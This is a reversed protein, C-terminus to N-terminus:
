KKANFIISTSDRKVFECNLIVTQTSTPKEAGIRTFLLKAAVRGLEMAPLINATIPVKMFNDYFDFSEFGAVALDKPIRIKHDFCYNLCGAVHANIVSYIASPRYRKPLALLKETVRYGGEVDASTPVILEDIIPVEHDRLACLYGALRGHHDEREYARHIIGIRRHKQEILHKVVTYSCDFDNFVAYDQDYVIPKRTIFVLPIGRTIVEDIYESKEGSSALIIGDIRKEILNIISREEEEVRFGTNCIILSSDNKLAVEEIGKTYKATIPNSIDGV